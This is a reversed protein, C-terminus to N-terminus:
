KEGKKELAERYQKLRDKLEDPADPTLKIAREQTEVAKAFEKSDFYAKALTDAIAGNKEETIKDARLAAKLAVAVLEPDRKGADPDVIVWAITNLGEANDKFRGDILKSVYEMGQKEKGKIQMLMMFKLPALQEELSPDDAFVEEIATLLASEGKAEAKILKQQVAEIKRQKAMAEKREKIAEKHEKIAAALDFTGASVKELVKDLEMPHGIWLIKGEGNVVFASPIGEQEAATMWNKAMKGDNGDGNKPVEDIAVAYDMKEGMEKVFPKVKSPDQEWVSVGIFKIDKYKKQLETLHPISVRCPGCWTAWFEVVYTKGKEFEKVADGKVFEKIELKPASDGVGLTQARAASVCHFSMVLAVSWLAFSRLM